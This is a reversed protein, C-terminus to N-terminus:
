GEIEQTIATIDNRTQEYEAVLEEEESCYKDNIDELSILSRL